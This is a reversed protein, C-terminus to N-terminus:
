KGGLQGRAATVVQDPRFGFKQQLAKLPASAAFTRMGIVQGTPGVYRDWGLTSGQEV